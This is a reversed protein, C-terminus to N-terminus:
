VVLVAFADVSQESDVRLAVRVQEDHAAVLGRELEVQGVHQLGLAIM